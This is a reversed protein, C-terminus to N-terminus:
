TSSMPPHPLPPPPPHQSPAWVSMHCPASQTNVDAAKREVLKRGGTGHIAHCSTCAVTDKAHGTLIRGVKSSSNLHCGLCTRDTEIAALKAPQRIDKAEASEVHKAGPGHCSECAQAAWGRSKNTEVSFHPTKTFRAAIEEHCMKCAESGAYGPKLAPAPAAAAEQAAAPVTACGLFAAAMVALRLAGTRMTLEMARAGKASRSFRRTTSEHTAPSFENAPCSATM